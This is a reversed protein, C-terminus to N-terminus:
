TSEPPMRLQRVILIGPADYVESRRVVPCKSWEKHRHRHHSRLGSSNREYPTRMKAKRSSCKM